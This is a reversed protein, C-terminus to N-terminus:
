LRSKIYATLYLYFFYYRANSEIRCDSINFIVKAPLCHSLECTLLHKFLVHLLFRCDYSFYRVLQLNRKIKM